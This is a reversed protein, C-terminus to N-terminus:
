SRSFHSILKHTVGMFEKDFSQEAVGKTNEEPCAEQNKFISYIFYVSVISYQSHPRRLFTWIELNQNKKAWYNRRLNMERREHKVVFLLSSFAAGKISQKSIEEVLM